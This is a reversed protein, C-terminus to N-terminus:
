DYSHSIFNCLSNENVRESEKEDQNITIIASKKDAPDMAFIVITNEM